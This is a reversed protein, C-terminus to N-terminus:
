KMDYIIDLAKQYQRDNLFKTGKVVEVLKNQTTFDAVGYPYLDTASQFREVVKATEEDYTMSMDPLNYGLKELWKKVAYVDEGYDGIQIQRTPEIKPLATYDASEYSNEIYYDPDIGIKHINEGNPLNYQAITLWIADSNKIKLSTQVTGKGFTKVGVLPGAKYDKITGSVIESASASYENVLVVVKFKDDTKKSYYTYDNEPDKHSEVVVISEDPIFYSVVGVAEKVLGGLNDRLDLVIKDVGQSKLDELASKFYETTNGNFSSIKVYGANNKDLINYSVPSVKIIDRKLKFKLTEGKRLIGVTVYTGEDGRILSVVKDLGYSTIDEGNVSIIEDGTTIGAAYAPTGEIPSSVLIRGEDEMVTIGIGAFSGMTETYRTDYEDATLYASNEDLANYAGKAFESFMEPHNTLVEKLASNILEEHTIDFRYQHETVNMLQEFFDYMAEGDSTDLPALSFAYANINISFILVCLVIAIFRKKM